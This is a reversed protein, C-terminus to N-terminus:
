DIHRTRLLTRGAIAILLGIGFMLATPSATPAPAAPSACTGISGPLNCAELEGDCATNCCV